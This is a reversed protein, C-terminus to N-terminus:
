LHLKVIAVHHGKVYGYVHTGDATVFLKGKNNQATKFKEVEKKIADEADKRIKAADESLIVNKSTLNPADMQRADVVKSASMVHPDLDAWM